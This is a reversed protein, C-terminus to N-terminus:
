ADDGRRTIQAAPPKGPGVPHAGGAVPALFPEIRGLLEGADETPISHHSACALTVTTVEPLCDQARRTMRRVDHARSRGAGIVLVPVRLGALQAPRPSRPMVIKMRGLEQGAGIVALWAEDLQRRRTEWALFRRMRSASPRALLPIAHLRYRLSLPAFCHTPDLLVLRSVRGPAHLAYQLATWAGYSHGILAARAVSLGELLQGAWDAVDAATSLPKSGPVSFGAQGVPDVAIVRCSGSLGGAVAKWAIATAGGGPLLLVPLGTDAGCILVHTAGYATPVRASTVPVPWRYMADRYARSFAAAADDALQKGM